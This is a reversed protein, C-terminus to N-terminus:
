WAGEEVAIVREAKAQAAERAVEHGSAFLRGGSWVQWAWRERARLVKCVVKGGDWLLEGDLLERWGTLSPAGEEAAIAREAAAQAADRTREWGNAIEHDPKLVVNEPSGRGVAWAGDQQVYAAMGGRRLVQMM